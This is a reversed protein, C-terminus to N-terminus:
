LPRRGGTVALRPRRTWRARRRAHAREPLARGSVHHGHVTPDRGPALAGGAPSVGDRRDAGARAHRDIGDGCRRGGARRPGRDGRAFAQEQLIAATGAAVMDALETVDWNTLRICGHSQTKSIAAPEPTGHIGYHEKSLDIWVVGVPSNPGPAIRAKSHEGKADWLVDPKDLLEP